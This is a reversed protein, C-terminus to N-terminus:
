HNRAFRVLVPDHDSFREGAPFEANIHVVDVESVYARMAPSVLVHDLVQANGEFLFTYQEEVPLTEVLDSLVDGKLARLPASFQFDNLDGAVVVWAQPDLTVIQQVFDKVMLAQKTRQVASSLLPPQVEGYLPTDGSKSNFHNAIVFLRQQGWLFEGALPKRSDVFAEDQPSVRGPSLSLTVGDESKLVTVPTIADGGPRDVFQVRDPRFLFGVRINGGVEGGDCNNEPAIERFAYVPGGAKQVADVIRQYTASADVLGSDLTGDGDQVEVLVLIDPGGLNSTIHEALMEFRKADDKADLNELNYSAFTLVDDRSPKVREAMLGGKKVLVRVIPQIKYNGFSYDLIGVIPQEFRDGVTAVPLSRLSDDLLIREPNFDGERVVLAGRASLVSAQEGGDAVVAIEKYASSAGVVRAENVQVLMSEMSEYFDLGDQEVDFSTKGDDDLIAVPPMRGGKGLVVPEPLAQGSELVSVQADKLETVSLYGTEVGGPYFEDVMGDVSVWDGVKTTPPFRTFVFIGESTALDDDPNLGQMYFGDARLATVVGTVNTVTQGAMPSVHGAGQIDHIDVVDTLAPTVVEEITPQLTQLQTVVDTQPVCSTLMLVILVGLWLRRM